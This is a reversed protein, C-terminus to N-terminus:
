KHRKPEYIDIYKERYNDCCKNAFVRLSPINKINIGAKDIKDNMLSVYHNPVLDSEIKSSNFLM